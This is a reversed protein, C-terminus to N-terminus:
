RKLSKNTTDSQGQCAFKGHFFRKARVQLHMFSEFSHQTPITDVDGHSIIQMLLQEEKDEM